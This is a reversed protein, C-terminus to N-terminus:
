VLFLFLGIIILCTIWAAYKKWYFEKSQKNKKQLYKYGLYRHYEDHCNKCLFVKEGEGFIGKPFIHHEDCYHSEKCKECIQKDKSKPM